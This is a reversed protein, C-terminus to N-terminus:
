ELRAVGLPVNFERCWLYVENYKSLDISGHLSYSQRGDDSKLDALESASDYRGNAGLGVVPDPAGDFSFDAGFVISLGDGSRVISATGSADYQSLGEFEGSRLTDDANAAANAFLVTSAFLLFCLYIKRM